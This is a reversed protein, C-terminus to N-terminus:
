PRLVDQGVVLCRHLRQRSQQRLIVGFRALLEECNRQRGCEFDRFNWPPHSGQKAARDRIHRSKTADLEGDRSVCTVRVNVVSPKKKDRKRCQPGPRDADATQMGTVRDGIILSNLFRRVQKMEFMRGRKALDVSPRQLWSSACTCHDKLLGLPRQQKRMMAMPVLIALFV